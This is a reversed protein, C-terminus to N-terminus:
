RNLALQLKLLSLGTIIKTVNPTSSGCLARVELRSFVKSVGIPIQTKEDTM